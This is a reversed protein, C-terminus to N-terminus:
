NGKRLAQKIKEETTEAEIGRLMQMAQDKNYGLSILAELAEDGVPLQQGSAQSILSLEGMKDQLDVIIREGAKKGVGSALVLFATNGAAIETRLKDAPGLDFVALAAKPGVGNVSLLQEFLSQDTKSRFGYLTHEQERIHEYIYMTTESSIDISGSLESSVVVGYGVGKVDLVINREDFEIVTGVLRVIM